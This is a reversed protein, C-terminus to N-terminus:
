LQFGDQGVFLAWAQLWTPVVATLTNLASCL